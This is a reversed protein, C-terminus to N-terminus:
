TTACGLSSASTWMVVTLGTAGDRYVCEAVDRRHQNELVSDVSRLAASLVFSHAADVAFIM